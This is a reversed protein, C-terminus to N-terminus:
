CGFTAVVGQAYNTAISTRFVLTIGFTALSYLAISQLSNFSNTNSAPIGNFKV